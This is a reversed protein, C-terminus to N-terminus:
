VIALLEVEFILVAKPPIPGTGNDGYAIESPITLKAKGGTKMLQLGETWGAIVGSLPFEIPEGRAISSDFVTGDVLKGEYHVRVTQERTPSPGSGDVLHKVVLGSATKTAGSEAAAAVLAEVGKSSAAEVAAEMRSQLLAAGLPVYESLPVKPEEGLISSRMGALTADVEAPSLEKLDRLQNGINFGIAYLADADSNAM